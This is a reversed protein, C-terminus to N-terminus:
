CVLMIIPLNFSLGSVASKKSFHKSLFGEFLAGVPSSKPGGMEVPQPISRSCTLPRECFYAETM